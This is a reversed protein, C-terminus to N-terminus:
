GEEIGGYKIIGYNLECVVAYGWRKLPFPGYPQYYSVLTPLQAKDTRWQLALIFNHTSSYLRCFYSSENSMQMLHM